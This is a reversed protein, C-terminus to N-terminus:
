GKRRYFGSFSVNAGGCANNDNVVLYPGRRVMRVRCTFEDGSDYPLTAGDDGMTFALLGDAPRAIGAVEGTHVGGRALRAPDGMGWTASGKVSLADGKGSAITIDQEPAVWHGNWDTPHQDAPRLPALAKTPFWGITAAGKAAAFGICTFAGQAAGILVVDGPTLYATDKCAAGDNPCGHAMVDDKVFYTRATTSQVNAAITAHQVIDPWGCGARAAAPMMAVAIAIVTLRSRYARHRQWVWAQHERIHLNLDNQANYPM